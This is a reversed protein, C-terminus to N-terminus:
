TIILDISILLLMLIQILNNELYFFSFYLLLSLKSLIMLLMQLSFPATGVIFQLGVTKKLYHIFQASGFQDQRQKIYGLDALKLQLFLCLRDKHLHALSFFNFSDLAYNDQLM